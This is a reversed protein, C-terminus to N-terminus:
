IAADDDPGWRSRELEDPSIIHWAIAQQVTMGDPVGARRRLKRVREATAALVAEELPTLPRQETTSM